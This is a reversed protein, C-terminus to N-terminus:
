KSKRWALIMDLNPDPLITLEKYVFLIHPSKDIVFNEVEGFDKMYEPNVEYLRSDSNRFKKIKKFFSIITITDICYLVPMNGFGFPYIRCEPLLIKEALKFDEGVPYILWLKNDAGGRRGIISEKITKM